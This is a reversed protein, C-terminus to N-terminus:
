NTEKKECVLCFLVMTRFVPFESFRAFLILATSQTQAHACIQFQSCCHQAVIYMKTSHFEYIYVTSFVQKCSSGYLRKYSTFICKQTSSCPTCFLTNFLVQTVAEQKTSQVDKPYPKKQVDGIARFSRVALGALPLLSWELIVLSRRPAYVQGLAVRQWIM